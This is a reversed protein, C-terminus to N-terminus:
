RKAAKDKRSTTADSYCRVKVVIVPLSVHRADAVRSLASGYRLVRDM